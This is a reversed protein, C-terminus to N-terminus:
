KENVDKDVTPKPSKLGFLLTSLINTANKSKNPTAIKENIIPIKM